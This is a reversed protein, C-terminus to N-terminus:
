RGMWQLIWEITEKPWGLTSGILVVLLSLIRFGAILYIFVFGMIGYLIAQKPREMIFKGLFVSPNKKIVNVEDRMGDLEKKLEIVSQSLLTVAESLDDVSKKLELVGENREEEVTVHTSFKEHLEALASLTLRNVADQSLEGDEKALARLENFMNGNM